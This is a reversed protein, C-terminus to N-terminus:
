KILDNIKKIAGLADKSYAAKIQSAYDDTVVAGGIIVPIDINHNRLEKIVKEMEIVTTTMLASLAVLNPKQKITEQIIKETPVSTGLDIVEYNNSELLAIVINKGIDHVDNEVTAFLVKGKTKGGEQKLEKKLRSFAQKTSEASALVQPLFYKKKNFRDGVENLADVLINNIELAKKTKLCKEILDIVPEKNGYLVANYLQKEAPLNKDPKPKKVKFVKIETNEQIINDLPNIIALDLGIKSAKTLFKSNIESRNPLGHSINSVGLITKYGLKKFEKVSELIINENEPNTAITLVLSDVIIDQKKIGISEATTIIKKGVEIRKEKTKPIGSEDLCLALIAAGYKKALPLVSKLSKEGANVSNILSKGDSRKLALELAAINSSDIVIPVDTISQVTEVAKPLTKTEDLGAVGVNVDLLQAGQQVQELATKRVFDMKGQKLEEQFDKKNTPNIREGVILTPKITLTSTRSCLKTEQKVKNQKPKLTKVTEKVQKIFDPDTGCCGGVFCAGLKIFEKSFDAFKDKPYNWVTKGDVIKPMGANPEVWLPKNTLKSAKKITEIMGEPGDSCNTGIVDVDLAEAVTIYTEVDTGTTTRGDQFTMSTVIPLDTVEKVAIIAAKLEKIDFFTQILIFDAQKLAEAQEKFAEYAQDFTLKGLPEILDGLPGIDGAVLCGPCSDRINKVAAQNIEKVKIQLNYDKLKLRNAGFTNTEIIDAGADAYSKHISKILEPNSINLEDPCGKLFGRKQLETGMAGDIVFVKNKLKDLFEKKDM